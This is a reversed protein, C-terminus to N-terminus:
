QTEINSPLQRPLEDEPPKAQETTSVQISTLGSSAKALHLTMEDRSNSLMTLARSFRGELEDHVTKISSQASQLYSDLRQLDVSQCTRLITQFVLLLYPVLMSYSVLVVNMEFVDAQIGSCLDYIADPITAIAFNVTINPDIYKRVERARNLVASEIQSKLKLQESSDECNVFQELLTTAAWKSDIPLVLGNPLRLGFEVAKDGIRMNRVQWEPPLKGFVVEVINEGAAGKTQTGAIVAELRKISDATQQELAQRAKTHTQLETLDNKARTLEERIASATEVISKTVAGTEMLGANLTFISQAAQGQNTEVKAVRESLGRMEVNINNVSQVVPEIQTLKEALVAAQQTLQQLHISVDSSSQPKRLLAVIVGVALLVLAAILLNDM